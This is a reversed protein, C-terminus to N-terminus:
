RPLAAESGAPERQQLRRAHFRLLAEIHMRLSDIVRVNSLMSFSPYAM